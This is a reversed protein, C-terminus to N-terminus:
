YSYEISALWFGTTERSGGDLPREARGRYGIRWLFPSPARVGVGLEWELRHDLIAADGPAWTAGPAIPASSDPTEDPDDPRSQVTSSGASADFVFRDGIRLLYEAELNLAHEVETGAGLGRPIGYRLLLLSDIRDGDVRSAPVIWPNRVAYALLLDFTHYADVRRGGTTDTRGVTVDALWDWGFGLGLFRRADRSAGVLVDQRLRRLQEDTSVTTTEHTLTTRLFLREWPWELRAGVETDTPATLGSGSVEGPVYLRLALRDRSVHDIGTSGSPAAIRRSEEPTPLRDVQTVYEVAGRLTPSPPIVHAGRYEEYIHPVAREEFYGRAINIGRYRLPDERDGILFAARFSRDRLLVLATEEVPHSTRSGAIVAGAFLQPNRVALAWSLDGGLSYGGLYVRDPDANYERFLAELDALLREEYWGVFAGFNPLYEERTPQGAPFVLLFEEQAAPDLGFNRAVDSAHAGTPPLLVFVPYSRNRNYRVPPVVEAPQDFYGPRESAATSVTVLVALVAILATRM